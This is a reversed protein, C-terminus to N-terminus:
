ANKIIKEIEPFYEQSFHGKNEFSVLKALPLAKKYKLVQEYLVETDDKSQLLYINKCQDTMKSSLEFEFDGLSEESNAGDFPAAVLIIAKIKKPIINESLYKSLFIGGLSKGILILDDDLQSILNNFCIAWELYKANNKNPMQALIVDFNDGLDEQLNEKWDKKFRLRDLYIEDKRLYDIYDDYSDFAMGGHIVVVQQKTNM